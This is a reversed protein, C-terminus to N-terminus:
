NNGREKDVKDAIAEVVFQAITIGKKAAEVKMDRHLDASILVNLRKMDETM